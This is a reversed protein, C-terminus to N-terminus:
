YIITTTISTSTVCSNSIAVAVKVFKNHGMGGVRCASESWLIPCITSSKVPFTNPWSVTRLCTLVSFALATQNHLHEHPLSNSLTLYLSTVLFVLDQPQKFDLCLACLQVPYLSILPTQQLLILCHAAILPM